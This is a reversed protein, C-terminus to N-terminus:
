AASQRIASTVSIIYMYTGTARYPSAKTQREEEAPETPVVDPRESSGGSCRRRRNRAPTDNRKKVRKLLAMRGKKQQKQPDKKTRHVLM